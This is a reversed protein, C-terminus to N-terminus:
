DRETMVRLDKGDSEIIITGCLDTRYIRSTYRSIRDIASKSPHGYSNGEGCSIVSIDPRVINLFATTSSSGSGHHGAKCVDAKQLRGGYFMENESVGEADGTLVFSKEGHTVFFSVSYDNVDEYDLSAPAIIEARADGLEIVRGLQAETVKCDKEWCADLFREYFVTTPIDDDSVHPIIVEGIDFKDVIYAMGGMHDSHPHTGVLYDIRSVGRETLYSIVDSSYQYEGCDILMIKGDCALLTCDGQGVDIFHVALTDDAALYPRKRNSYLRFFMATVFILLLWVLWNLSKRKKKKGRKRRKQGSKAKSSLRKRQDSSVRYRQTKRKKEAM